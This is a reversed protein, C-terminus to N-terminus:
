LVENKYRDISKIISGLVGNIFSVTDADDYGKDLEVAENASVAYPIDDFYLMECVACRLINLASKSIREPKWGNSNEAIIRDIYLYNDAVKTVLLTIYKKQKSEPYESYIDDETALTSYYDQAFFEDLVDQIPKDTFFYSFCIQIAIERAVARKM